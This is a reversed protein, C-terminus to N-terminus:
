VFEKHVRLIKLLNVKYNKCQLKSMVKYYPRTASFYLDMNPLEFLKLRVIMISGSSPGMLVSVHLLLFYFETQTNISYLVLNTTNVSVKGVYMLVRYIMRLWTTVRVAAEEEPPEQNSDREPSLIGHSLKKNNEEIGGDM